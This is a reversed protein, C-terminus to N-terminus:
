VLVYLRLGEYKFQDLLSEAVDAHDTAAVVVNGVKRVVPSVAAVVAGRLSVCQINSRRFEITIWVVGNAQAVAEERPLREALSNIHGDIEALVSVDLEQRALTHKLADLMVREAIVELLAVAV